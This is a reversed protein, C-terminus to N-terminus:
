RRGIPALVSQHRYVQIRLFKELPTNGACIHNIGYIRLIQNLRLSRRFDQRDSVLVVNVQVAACLM